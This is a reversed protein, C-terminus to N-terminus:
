YDVVGLGQVCWKGDLNTAGVSGSIDKGSLSGGLHAYLTTTSSSYYKVTLQPEGGTVKNVDDKLLEMGDCGMALAGAADKANLKAVFDGLFQQGDASSSGGTGPVATQNTPLGPESPATTPRSTQLPAPNRTQATTNSSDKSLFFGPAVFGTIGLTAVIVVAVAIAIWLGTKNNKPPQSGGGYGGGYPQNPDWGQQQYSQAGPYRQAYQQTNPAQGPQQQANPVWGPQWGPGPQQWGQGYPGPPGGQGPQPPYTM